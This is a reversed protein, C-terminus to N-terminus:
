GEMMYVPLIVWGLYDLREAVTGRWGEAKAGIMIKDGVERETKGTYQPLPFRDGSANGGFAIYGVPLSKNVHVYNEKRTFDTFWGIYRDIDCQTDTDPIRAGETNQFVQVRAILMNVSHIYEPGCKIRECEDRYAKLAPLVAVDKACLVMANEQTYHKGNCPNVATFVFKRDIM